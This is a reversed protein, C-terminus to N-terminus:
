YLKSLGGVEGGGVGDGVKQNGKKEDSFNDQKLPISSPPPPTATHNDPIVHTDNKKILPANHGRGSLM